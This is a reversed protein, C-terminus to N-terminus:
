ASIARPQLLQRRAWVPEPGHRVQISGRHLAAVADMMRSQSRDLATGASLLPEARAARYLRETALGVFRPRALDRLRRSERDLFGRGAHFRSLPTLHACELATSPFLQRFVPDLDLTDAWDRWKARHISALPQIAIWPIRLADAVIVGHLAESLITHCRTMARVIALPDGRPDILTLGAAAAAEAWAGRSASEFHPMFGIAHLRAKAHRAPALGALPVLSGPDGMALAPSLGLWWATRPGRVWHVCWTDDLAVPAEYGGYGSGAVLKRQLPDHRRDLVSGIGLFAITEDDDFFGPLLRPWLLTNLEDGFNPQQGRWRYLIM